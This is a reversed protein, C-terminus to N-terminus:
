EVIDTMLQYLIFGCHSTPATNSVALYFFSNSDLKEEKLRRGFRVGWVSMDEAM